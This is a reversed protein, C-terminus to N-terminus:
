RTSSRSTRARPSRPSWRARTRASASSPRASSTASTRSVLLDLDALPLSPLASRVMNADLHCEGGFGQDTNLQTVPIHVDALRDADLTGAVDGELVGPACARSARCRAELLTTKGAGPASMLNPWRSARATSTPATRRRDHQQRRPRGRRGEGQAICESEEEVEISDVQLEKSAFRRWRASRVGAASRRSVSGRARRLGGCRLRAPVVELELRAGAAPTDRSVIDSYFALSDPIVPAPARGWRPRHLVRRDEAHRRRTSVASAVSLAHMPVQLGRGDAARRRHRRGPRHRQDVAAVIAPTLGLGLDEVDTPECAVIVVKGRWGGVARVFRLVTAPDMGHPNIVDGDEISPAIEELDPELM